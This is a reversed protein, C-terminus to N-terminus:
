CQKLKNVLELDLPQLEILMSPDGKYPSDLNLNRISLYDLIIWFSGMLITLIV